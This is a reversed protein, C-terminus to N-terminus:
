YGHWRNVPWYRFDVRGVVSSRPVPGYSRSDVSHDRNDGLVWVEDDGMRTIDFETEGRRGLLYPEPLRRTGNVAVVGQRAEVAEGPLAIVRKVLLHQDTGRAPRVPRTSDEDVAFVVLDGRELDEFGVAHNVAIRDEEQLSPWMSNTPVRLPTYVLAEVAFVIVNATAVVLLLGFIRRTRV